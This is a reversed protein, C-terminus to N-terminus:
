RNRPPIPIEKTLCFETQLEQTVHDYYSPKGPIVPAAGEEEESDRGM